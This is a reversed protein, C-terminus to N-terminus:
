LLVLACDGSNNWTAFGTEADYEVTKSNGAQIALLKIPLADDDGTAVILEQNTFDWALKTNTPAGNTGLAVVAASAKLPVRMNSGIRYFSVSMGSAYQPVPSQPSSLGNHAQNFVTFGCVDAAKAAKSIETGMPNTNTGVIKELIPQGGFLVGTEKTSVFGAALNFRNAPDDLAVGQYLGNSEIGFSGKANTTKMPNISISGM